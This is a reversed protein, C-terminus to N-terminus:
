TLSIRQLGFDILLRLHAVRTGVVTHRRTRLAAVRAAFARSRPIKKRCYWCLVLDGAAGRHRAQPQRRTERGNTSKRGERRRGDRTDSSHATRARGVAVRALTRAVEVSRRGGTKLTKKTEQAELVCRSFAARLFSLSMAACACRTGCVAYWM